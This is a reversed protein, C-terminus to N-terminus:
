KMMRGLVDVLENAKQAREAENDNAMCYQAHDRVLELAARDLAARAASIQTLVDICYADQEVM